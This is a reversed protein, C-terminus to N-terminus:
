HKFLCLFLNLMLQSFILLYLTFHSMGYTIQLYAAKISHRRTNQYLYRRKFFVDTRKKQRCPTVTRCVTSTASITHKFVPFQYNSRLPLVSSSSTFRFTSLSTSKLKQGEVLITLIIFIHPIYCAHPVHVLTQDSSRLQFSGQCVPFPLPIYRYTKYIPNVLLLKYQGLFCPSTDAFISVQHNAPYRSLRITSPHVYLYRSSQM